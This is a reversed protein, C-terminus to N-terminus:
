RDMEAHGVTHHLAKIKLLKGNKQFQKNTYIEPNRREKHHIYEVNVDVGM